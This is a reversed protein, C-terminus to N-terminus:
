PLSLRGMWLISDTKRDWIVFIFPHDAMFEYPAEEMKLSSTEAKERMATMVDSGKEDIRIFTKHIAKDIFLGKQASIGTFDAELGFVSILGLEKLDNRLDLRDELRFRPLTLSVSQMQLQNLWQKWNALTFRKELEELESNKPLVIVMNLELDQDGKVYPLVVIDLQDGKWLLYHASIHMMDAMLTRQASVHFPMRKTQRADFPYVWQGQMAMATTLIFRTKANVDQGSVISKIKGGTKQSVSQNIIQISKSSENTFDLPQLSLRFNRQLAIKFSPLFPLNSQLWIDNALWVKTLSKSNLVPQLVENFDAILPLLSLSYHFVHQFQQATQGKAGLAALALGSAVSYSSFCFNGPDDKMAQYLDFAFRNNGEVVTQFFQKESPSISPLASSSEESQACLSMSIVIGLCILCSRLLDM